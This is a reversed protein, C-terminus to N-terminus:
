RIKFRATQPSRSAYGEIRSVRDNKYADIWLEVMADCQGAVIEKLLDSPYATGAAVKGSSALEETPNLIAIAHGDEVQGHANGVVLLPKEEGDIKSTVLLRFTGQHDASVKLVSLFLAAAVEQLQDVM